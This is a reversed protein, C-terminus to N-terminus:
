NKCAKLWWTLNCQHVIFNLCLSGPHVRGRNRQLEKRQEERGFLWFDFKWIENQVISFFLDSQKFYGEFVATEGREEGGPQMYIHFYQWTSKAKIPLVFFSEDMSEFTLVAQLSEM